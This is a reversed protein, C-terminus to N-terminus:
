KATLAITTTIAPDGEKVGMDTEETMKQRDHASITARMKEM